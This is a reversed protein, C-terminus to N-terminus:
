GIAAAPGVGVADTASDHLHPALRYMRDLGDLWGALGDAHDPFLALVGARSPEDGSVLAAQYSGRPRRLASALM